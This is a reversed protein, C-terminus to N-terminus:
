IVRISRGSRPQIILIGERKPYCRCEKAAHRKPFYLACFERGSKITKAPAIKAARRAGCRCVGLWWVVTSPHGTDTRFWHIHLRM